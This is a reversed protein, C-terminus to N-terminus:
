MNKMLICGLDGISALHVRMLGQWASFNDKNLRPIERKYSMKIKLKSGQFRGVLVLTIGIKLFTSPNISLPSSDNVM